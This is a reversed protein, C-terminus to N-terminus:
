QGTNRSQSCFLGLCALTTSAMWRIVSRVRHPVISFPRCIKRGDGETSGGQFVPKRKLKPVTHARYLSPKKERQKLAASIFNVAWSPSQKLRPTHSEINVGEGQSQLEGLGMNRRPNEQNKMQHKKLCTWDEHHSLM